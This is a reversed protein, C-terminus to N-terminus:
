MSVVGLGLVVIQPDCLSNNREPMSAAYRQAAALQRAVAGVSCGHLRNSMDHSSSTSLRFVISHNNKVGTKQLATTNSRDLQGMASGCMLDRSQTTQRHLLLHSNHIVLDLTFVLDVNDISLGSQIGPEYALADLVLDLKDGTDDHTAPASDMILSYDDLIPSDTFLFSALLNSINLVIFMNRKM